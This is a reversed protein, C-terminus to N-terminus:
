TTKPRMWNDAFGWLALAFMTIGVSLPLILLVYLAALWGRSLKGAAKSRHAAALGQFCLATFAVFALSAFLNSDSLLVTVFLATVAIGLVRGLRLRRFEAGFEGPAALLSQWWCGLFLGGLSLALMLAFMAGWMTRSLAAILQELEARPMNAGALELMQRLLDHWIGVPDPLVAYVALLALAVFVVAVQVCLTLSGTRKLLMALLVPGFLMAVMAVATWQAYQAFAPPAMAIAVWGAAVSGTAALGLALNANSRLVTLVPIAGALVLFPMFAQPSLAGCFASAM